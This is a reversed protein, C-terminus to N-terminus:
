KFNPTSLEGNLIQVSVPQKTLPIIVVKRLVSGLNPLSVSLSKVGTIDGDLSCISYYRDLYGDFNNDVDPVHTRLYTDPEGMWVILFMIGSGTRKTGCVMKDAVHPSDLLNSLVLNSESSKESYYKALSKLQSNSPLSWNSLLHSFLGARLDVFHSSSINQVNVSINLKPTLIAPFNLNDLVVVPNNFYNPDGGSAWFIAPYYRDTENINYKLPRNITSRLLPSLDEQVLGSDYSTYIYHLNNVFDAKAEANEFANLYKKLDDDGYVVAIRSPDWFSWYYSENPKYNDKRALAGDDYFINVKQSTKSIYQRYTDFFFKQRVISIGKPFDLFVDYQKSLSQYGFILYSIAPITVTIFGFPKKIKLLFNGMHYFFYSWIMLAGVSGLYSLHHSGTSVNIEADSAPLHPGFLSYFLASLILWFFGVYVTTQIEKRRIIQLLFYFMITLLFLLGFTVTILGNSITPLFQRHIYLYFEPPFSFVGIVYLYLKYLPLTVNESKIARVAFLGREAFFVFTMFYFPSQIAILKKTWEFWKKTNFYKASILFATISILPLVFGIRAIGGGTAAMYLFASLYPIKRMKNLDLEWVLAIISVCIVFGQWAFNMPQTVWQFAEFTISTTAILFGSLFGIFYNKSLYKTLFYVGIALLIHSLLTILQYPFISYGFLTRIVEWVWLSYSSLWPGWNYFSYATGARNLFFYFDDKWFYMYFQKFHFVFVTISILFLSLTDRLRIQLKLGRYYKLLYAKSLILFFVIGAIEPLVKAAVLGFSKNLFDWVFFSYNFYVFILSVIGFYFPKIELKQDDSFRIRIAGFLSALLERLDASSEGFKRDRFTIAVESIQFGAKRLKYATESLSIFGKEKLTQKALFEAAKRSYARYGNTYDTLNLGLWIKLFFNIIKSQIIRFFPWKIIKSGARYRSGVVMNSADISKLLLAMDKPDHALDADMEVIVQTSKSILSHKLGEIVASGRGQKKLRSIVKFKKSIKAIIKKSKANEDKDSDDVVVVNILPYTKAIKSVLIQLNKSENYAPIVVSVHSFNKRKKM